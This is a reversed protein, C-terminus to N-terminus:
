PSDKYNPSVWGENLLNEELEPSMKTHRMYFFFHGCIAGCVFSVLPSAFVSNQVFRSISDNLGGTAVAYLDYIGLTCLTALIVMATKSM